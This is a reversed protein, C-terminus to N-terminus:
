VVIFYKEQKTNVLQRILSKIYLPVFEPRIKQLMFVVEKFSGQGATPHINWRMGYKQHIVL